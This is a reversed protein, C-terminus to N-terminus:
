HCVSLISQRRLNTTNARFDHWCTPLFLIAQSSNPSDSNDGSVAGIREDFQELSLGIQPNSAFEVERRLAEAVGEDEDLLVAPLSGLLHAALAAREAEPLALALKEIETITAM